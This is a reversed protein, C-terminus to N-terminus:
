DQPMHITFTIGKQKLCDLLTDSVGLSNYPASNPGGGHPLFHWHVGGHISRGGSWWVYGTGSAMEASARAAAASWHAPSFRTYGRRSRAQRRTGLAGTPM